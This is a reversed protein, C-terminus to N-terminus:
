SSLSPGAKAQAKKLGVALYPAVVKDIVHYLGASLVALLVWTLAHLLDLNDFVGSALGTSVLNAIRSWNDPKIVKVAKLAILALVLLIVTQWDNEILQLLLQWFEPFTM